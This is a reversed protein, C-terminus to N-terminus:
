LDTDAIIIANIQGSTRHPKAAAGELKLEKPKTEKAVDPSAATPKSGDQQPADGKVKDGGEAKAPKPAGDPYASNAVGAGRGAGGADIAQGRAQLHAAPRRPRAHGYVQRRRDANGPPQHAPDADSADHGRGGQLPVRVLGPQPARHWRFARGERRHQPPRPGA